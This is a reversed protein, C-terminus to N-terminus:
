VLIQLTLVNWDPIPDVASSVGFSTRVAIEPTIIAVPIRHFTTVPESHNSACVHYGHVLAHRACVSFASRSFNNCDRFDRPVRERAVILGSAYPVRNQYVNNHTRARVHM